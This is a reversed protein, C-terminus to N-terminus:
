TVGYTISGIFFFDMQIPHFDLPKKKEREGRERDTQKREKAKEIEHLRIRQM